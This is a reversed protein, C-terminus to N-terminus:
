KNDFTTKEVAMGSTVFIYVTMFKNEKEECCIRM